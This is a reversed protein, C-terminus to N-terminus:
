LDGILGIAKDRIDSAISHDYAILTQPTSHGTLKSISAYDMGKKFLETIFYHRFNHFVVPHTIGAKKAYHTVKRQITRMSVEDFINDELKLGRRKIFQQLVRAADPTLLADKEIRQRRKLVKTRIVLREFDADKVKLAYYESIRRGTSKALTFLTFYYDDGISSNILADMEKKTLPVPIQKVM